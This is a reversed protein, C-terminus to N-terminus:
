EVSFWQSIEEQKAIHKNIYEKKLKKLYIDSMKEVLERNNCEVSLHVFMLFKTNDGIINTLANLADINNLHGRNSNIRQKTDLPRLSQFLMDRDYNSELIIGHCNKLRTAVLNNVEGLDTAMGVKVENHEIVFGIPDVTDHQVAFSTISFDDIDFSNGAEFEITKKPLKNNKSLEYATMSTTYLPIDLDNCFLRCGKVHDDHEHTLLVAKITSTDIDTQSIRRFLEKRSFGADVLITTKENTIVFSNGKSGSGLSCIKLIKKM